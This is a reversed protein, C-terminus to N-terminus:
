LNEIAQKVMTLEVIKDLYFNYHNVDICDDLLKIDDITNQIDILACSKIAAEGAVKRRYKDVLEIAKKNIEETM